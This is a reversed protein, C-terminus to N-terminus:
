LVAATLSMHVSFNDARMLILKGVWFANPFINSIPDVIVFLSAVTFAIAMQLAYRNNNSQCQTKIWNYIRSQTMREILPHRKKREEEGGQIHPSTIFGYESRPRFPVDDEVITIREQGPVKIFQQQQKQQQQQQKQLPEQPHVLVEEPIKVSTYTFQLAKQTSDALIYTM